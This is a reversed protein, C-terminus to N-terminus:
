TNKVMISAMRKEKIRILGTIGILALLLGALVFAPTVGASTVLLGGLLPGIASSASTLSSVTGFVRGTMHVPTHQQLLVQFPIFAFGAGIGVLWFSLLLLGTTMPGATVMTAIPGVVVFILGMLAAGASMKSLHSFTLKSSLWAATLTGVGSATMCWGLLSQQIGPIQRFLVITQSDALQLVLLVLCLLLTGYGIIRMHLMYRVGTVLDSWFSRQRDTEASETHRSAADMAQQQDKRGPLALLILGSLLFTAADVVFSWQIGAVALLLGGLAPGVIKCGQEISSSITVARPLQTAPVIERLKANKAPSFLVDFLSKGILILYVQWLQSAWLLSFVLLVRIWDASIMLWKRNLRDALVGALPGGILMPLVICLAIWTMQMPTAQWVMGTLTLLALLHLWDGLNSILQASMLVMFHRNQHIPTFQPHDPNENSHLSPTSM